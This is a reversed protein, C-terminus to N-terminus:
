PINKTKNTKRKICVIEGLIKSINSIFLVSGGLYEESQMAMHAKQPRFNSHHKLQPRLPLPFIHLNRALHALVLASM